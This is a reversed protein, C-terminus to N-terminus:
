MDSPCEHFLLGCRLPSSIGIDNYGELMCMYVCVCRMHTQLGCKTGLRIIVLGGELCGEKDGQPMWEVRENISTNSM